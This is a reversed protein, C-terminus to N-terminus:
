DRKTKRALLTFLSGLVAILIGYGASVGGYILYETVPDLEASLETEDLFNWVEDTYANEEDLPLLNRARERLAADNAEDAAFAELEETLKMTQVQSYIPGAPWVLLNSAEFMWQPGGDMAQKYLTESYGFQLLSFVLGVGAWVLFIEGIGGPRSSNAPESRRSQANSM